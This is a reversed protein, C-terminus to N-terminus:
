FSNYIICFNQKPTVRRSVFKGFNEESPENLCKTLSRGQVGVVSTGMPGKTEKM